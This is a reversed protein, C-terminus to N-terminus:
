GHIRGCSSRRDDRGRDRRGSTIHRDQRSASPGGSEDQPARATISTISRSDSRPTEPLVDAM